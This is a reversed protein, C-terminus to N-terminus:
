KYCNQTWESHSKVLDWPHLTLPSAGRDTARDQEGRDMNIVNENWNHYFEAGSNGEPKAIEAKENTNETQHSM